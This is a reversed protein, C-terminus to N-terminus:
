NGFLFFAMIYEADSFFLGQEREDDYYTEECNENLGEQYHMGHHIMDERLIKYYKM